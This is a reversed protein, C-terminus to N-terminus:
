QGIPGGGLQQATMRASGQGPIMEAQQGSSSPKNRYMPMNRKSMAVAQDCTANGTATAPDHNGTHGGGGMSDPTMM